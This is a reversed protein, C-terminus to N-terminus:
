FNGFVRLFRARIDAQVRKLGEVVAEFDDAGATAALLRQLRRSAAAPDFPEEVCIRLVQTLDAYLRLAKEFAHADDKVLAGSAALAGLAEATNARIAVRGQTAEILTLGQAVFEVDVM